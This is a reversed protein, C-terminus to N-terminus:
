QRNKYIEEVQDVSIESLDGGQTAGERLLEIDHEDEHEVIGQIVPRLQGPAPHLQELLHRPEEPVLVRAVNHEALYYIWIRDRSSEREQSSVCQSLVTCM